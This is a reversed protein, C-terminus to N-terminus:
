RRAAEPAASSSLPRGDLEGTLTRLFVVIAEVEDPSLSRDLQARGMTRVADNLTAARGDHFYPATLAINRLSPVRFVERDREEHTVWLRGLDPEEDQRRGPKTDRFVGFKQYLNGGVNM